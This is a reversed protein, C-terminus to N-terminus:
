EPCQWAKETLTGRCEHLVTRRPECGELDTGKDKATTCRLYKVNRDVVVVRTGGPYLVPMLSIPGIAWAQGSPYPNFVYPDKECCLRFFFTGDDAKLTKSKTEKESFSVASARRYRFKKIRGERQTDNAPLWEHVSATSWCIPSNGRRKPM